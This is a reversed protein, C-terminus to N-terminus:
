SLIPSPHVTKAPIVYPELAGPAQVPTARAAFVAILGPSVQKQPKRSRQTRRSQLLNGYCQTVAGAELPADAGHRSHKPWNTHCSRILTAPSSHSFQSTSWISSPDPLQWTLTQHAHGRWQIPIRSVAPNSFADM